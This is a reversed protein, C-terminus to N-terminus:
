RTRKNRRYQGPTVGEILKFWRIFSQGSSFGTWHAVQVLPTKADDLLRIAKKYRVEDLLRHYSTASKQLARHLTRGSMGLQQAVKEKSPPTDFLLATIMGRVDEVVNSRNHRKLMEQAHRELAERMLADNHRMEVRALDACVIVESCPQDFYVPCNFLAHYHALLARKAPAPHALRVAWPFGSTDSGALSLRGLVVFCGLVYETALRQFESGGALCSWRLHIKGPSHLVEADGINSLLGNYKPVLEIIDGFSACAQMLFGLVGLTAPQVERALQLGLLPAGHYQASFLQLMTELLELSVTNDADALRSRSFGAQDLIEDTSIGANDAMSLFYQLHRVSVWNGGKEPLPKDTQHKAATM